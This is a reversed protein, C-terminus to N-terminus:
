PSRRRTDDLKFNGGVIQSPDLLEISAEEPPFKLLQWGGDIFIPMDIRAALLVARISAHHRPHMWVLRNRFINAHCRYFPQPLLSSARRSLTCVWFLQAPFPSNQSKRLCPPCCRRGTPFSGAHRMFSAQSPLTPAVKQRPVILHHKSHMVFWRM